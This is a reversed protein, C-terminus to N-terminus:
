PSYQNQPQRVLEQRNGRLPAPGTCGACNGMLWYEIEININYAIKILNDSIKNDMLRYWLNLKSYFWKANKHNGKIKNAPPALM